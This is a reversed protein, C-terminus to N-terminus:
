AVGGDDVAEKQKVQELDGVDVHGSPRCIHRYM